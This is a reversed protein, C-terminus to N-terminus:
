PCKVVKGLTVHYALARVVLGKISFGGGVPVLSFPFMSIGTVLFSPPFDEPEDPDLFEFWAIPM